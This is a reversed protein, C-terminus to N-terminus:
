ETSYARGLHSSYISLKRLEFSYKGDVLHVALKGERIALAIRAYSVHLGYHLEGKTAYKKELVSTPKFALNM